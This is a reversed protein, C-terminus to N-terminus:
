ESDKICRISYGEVKFNAFRGIRDEGAYLTRLWASNTDLESSTWWYGSGGASGYSGFHTIGGAPLGEFGTENTGNGNNQWGYTSKLRQGQDDGMWIEDESGTWILGIFQELQMWDEDSPVHWSIPCLGSDSTVAYWNYSRGFENLAWEENCADGDPSATYCEGEGQGYIALAGQTSNSWQAPSLDAPIAEGNRYNEARLNEAFWCQEGIQVTAYDYGQYELPDGCLWPSAEAECGGYASLLDLLDNLQVCGDLNIDAPNAVICTQTEPDWATGECCFATAVECAVCSGDEQNANDDYNCAEPNTCGPVAAEGLYFAESTDDTLLGSWIALRDVAGNLTRYNPDQFNNWDGLRFLRNSSGYEDRIKEEVFAGDIWLAARAGVEFCITHWEGATWDHSFSIASGPNFSDTWWLWIQGETEYVTWENNQTGTSEWKSLIPVLDAGFGSGFEDLRVEICMSVTEFSPFSADPHYLHAGSGNLELVHREASEVYEIDGSPLLPEDGNVGEIANGDFDFYMVPNSPVLYEPVQGAVTLCSAAFLLTFFRNM